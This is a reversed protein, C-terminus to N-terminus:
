SIVQFNYMIYKDMFSFTRKIMGVVRHATNVAKNCQSSCKLDNQLIVGLNHEELFKGNMEYLGLICLKVSEVNFLM